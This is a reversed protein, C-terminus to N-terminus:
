DSKELQAGWEFLTKQKASDLVDCRSLLPSPRHSPLPSPLRSPLVVAVATISPAVNAAISPAVAICCHRFARRCHLLLLSPL